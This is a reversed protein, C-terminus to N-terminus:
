PGVGSTPVYLEEVEFYRPRDNSLGDLARNLASKVPFGPLDLVPHWINSCLEKVETRDNPRLAM